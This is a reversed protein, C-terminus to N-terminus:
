ARLKLERLNVFPHAQAVCRLERCATYQADHWRREGAVVYALPIRSRTFLFTPHILCLPDVM